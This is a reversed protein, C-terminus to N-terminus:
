ELSYGESYCRRRRAGVVCAAKAEQVRPQLRCWPYTHARLSGGLVQRLRKCTCTHACTYVYAPICTRLYEATVRLAGACVQVEHGYAHGYAHVHVHAPARRRRASRRARARARRQNPNPDPNPNPNPNPNPTPTPNLNPNPNPDPNALGLGFGFGFWRHM